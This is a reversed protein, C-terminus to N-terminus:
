RALPSMVCGTPQEDTLSAPKALEPRGAQQGTGQRAPPPIAM